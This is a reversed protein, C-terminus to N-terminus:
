NVYTEKRLRPAHQYDIPKESNCNLSSPLLPRGKSLMVKQLFPGQVFMYTYYHLLAAKRTHWHRRAAELQVRDFQMMEATQANYSAFIRVVDWHTCNSESLSMRERTVPACQVSSAM